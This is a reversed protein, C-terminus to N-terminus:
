TLVLSLRVPNHTRCLVILSIEGDGEMPAVTSPTVPEVLNEMGEDMLEGEARTLSLISTAVGGEMVKADLAIGSGELLACTVHFSKSCKGKTCQVLKFILKFNISFLFASRSSSLLVLRQLWISNSM